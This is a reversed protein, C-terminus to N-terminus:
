SVVVSVLKNFPQRNLNWDKLRLVLYLLLRCFHLLLNALLFLQLRKSILIPISGTAVSLPSFM